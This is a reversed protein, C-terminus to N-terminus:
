MFLEHGGAGASPTGHRTPTIDPAGLGPIGLNRLVAAEEEDEQARNRWETVQRVAVEEEEEQERNGWEIAQRAAVSEGCFVRSKSYLGIPSM